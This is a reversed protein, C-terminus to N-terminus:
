LSGIVFLSSGILHRPLCCIMLIQVTQLPFVSILSQLGTQNPFNLRHGMSIPEIFWALNITDVENTYKPDIVSFAKCM